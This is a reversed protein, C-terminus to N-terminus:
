SAESPAWAKATLADSAERGWACTASGATCWVQLTCAVLQYVSLCRTLCWRRTILVSLCTHTVTAPLRTVSVSSAKQSCSWVSHHTIRADVVVVARQEHPNHHCGQSTLVCACQMRQALNSHWAGCYGGSAYLHCCTDFASLAHRCAM